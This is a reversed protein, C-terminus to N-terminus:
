RKLHSTMRSSTGRCTGSGLWEGVKGLHHSGRTYGSRMTSGLTKDGHVPVSTCKWNSSMRSADTAVVGSGPTSHLLWKGGSATTVKVASHDIGTYKAAGLMPRKCHSASTIKDSRSYKPM